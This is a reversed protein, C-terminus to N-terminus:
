RSQKAERATRDEHKPDRSYWGPMTYRVGSKIEEVGHEHSFGGPFALLLGKKTKVRKAFQTFYIDGGDYDDNLYVVSAYARWPMGHPSGDPNANDAHPPMSQGETWRVLQITDSYLAPEKYFGRLADIIRFRTEQMLDVAAAESKPLTNIWLFRNNWYPDGKPNVVLLNECRKFCDVLHDCAADTLFNEHYLVGHTKADNAQLPDLM